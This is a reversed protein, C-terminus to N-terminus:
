GVVRRRQLQDLPEVAQRRQRRLVMEEVRRRRRPRVVLRAPLRRRGAVAAAVEAVQEVQEGESGPRGAAPKGRRRAGRYALSTTVVRSERTVWPIGLDKWLCRLPGM